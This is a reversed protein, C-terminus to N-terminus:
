DLNTIGQYTLWGRLLVEVLDKKKVRLTRCQEDFRAAVDPTLDVNLPRSPMSERRISMARCTSVPNALLASLTLEGSPPGEHQAPLDAAPQGPLSPTAADPQRVGPDQGGSDSPSNDLEAPRSHGATALPPPSPLGETRSSRFARLVASRDTM